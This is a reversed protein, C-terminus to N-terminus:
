KGAAAKVRTKVWGPGKVTEVIGESKPLRDELGAAKVFNEFSGFSRAIADNKILNSDADWLLRYTLPKEPHKSAIERLEAILREKITSM